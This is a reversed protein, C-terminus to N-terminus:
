LYICVILPPSLNIINFPFLVQYQPSNSTSSHEESMSGGMPQNNNSEGTGPYAEGLFYLVSDIYWYIVKAFLKIRYVLGNSGIRFWPHGNDMTYHHMLLCGKGSSKASGYKSGLIIRHCHRFCHTNVESATLLVMLTIYCSPSLASHLVM